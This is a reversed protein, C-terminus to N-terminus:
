PKLRYVVVQKPELNVTASGESLTETTGFVPGGGPSDVRAVADSWAHNMLWLLRGGPAQAVRSQVVGHPSDCTVAPRVGAM